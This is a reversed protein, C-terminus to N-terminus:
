TNANSFREELTLLLDFQYLYNATITFKIRECYSMYKLCLLFTDSNFPIWSNFCYISNNLPQLLWALCCAVPICTMGWALPKLWCTAEEIWWIDVSRKLHLRCLMQAPWSSRKILHFITVWHEAMDTSLFSFNVTCIRHEPFTLVTTYIFILGEALGQMELIVPFGETVLISRQFFCFARPKNKQFNHKHKDWVFPFICYGESRM